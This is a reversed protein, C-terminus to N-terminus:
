YGDYGYLDIDGEYVYAKPSKPSLRYWFDGYADVAVAIIEVPTGEDPFLTNWDSQWSPTNLAYVDDKNTIGYLEAPEEVYAATKSPTKASPKPTAFAKYGSGNNHYHYTGSKHDWHGGYVDTRGSHALALGSAAILFILAFALVTRKM